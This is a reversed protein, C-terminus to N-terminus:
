IKQNHFSLILFSNELKLIFMPNVHNKLSVITVLKPLPLGKFAGVKKLLCWMNKLSIPIRFITTKLM